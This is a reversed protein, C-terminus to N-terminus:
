LQGFVLEGRLVTQTVKSKLISTHPCEILDTDLIVFDASKGAEISGKTKEEFGAKAAWITISRLAQERTLANEMQFGEAPIGEINKRCVAAYFTKVPSIDEIPFDTGNPIWGNQALLQQYAYATKMRKEGLREDAWLMDSTAHTAQVSPVISYKGFLAIDDPHIAQAHEIRWRLNNKEKLYKGYINLIFRNAGDGICHVAVQYGANYAKTCIDDFYSEPNMLLGRNWPQDSYDELLYAGRSGLAGDAYLKISRVQLRDTIYPGKPLFYDMNEKSPDMMVNLQMQLIGHKQLSDILLITEKPLGCDTVSTLGVSFCNKQAELLAKTKVENTPAQIRNFVLQMANDILIGTPKGNKIIIDGGDVKTNADIGALSLAKSNCWAAHGDVRVLYVPVDPFLEDLKKNDPFSKEPWLNQDWGRGLIWGDGAKQQQEKLKEFIVDQNASGDLTAYQLLDIGYGYFHCHADIFGPFVSQGKADFVKESSYKEQIEKASGIELFKGDKVAFSEQVSFKEDVTYVKANTVILDVKMKSSNCANLSFFLASLFTFTRNM